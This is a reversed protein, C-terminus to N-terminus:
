DTPNAVFQFVLAGRPGNVLMDYLTDLMPARTGLDSRFYFARITDSSVNRVLTLSETLQRVRLAGDDVALSRSCVTFLDREASEFRQRARNVLALQGFSIAVGSSASSTSSNREAGMEATSAASSNPSSSTSSAPPSASPSRVNHGAAAGSARATGDSLLMAASNDQSTIQFLVMNRLAQFEESNVRLAAFRRLIDENVQVEHATSPDQDPGLTLAYADFAKRLVSYHDILQTESINLYFLERWSDRLLIQQDHMSWGICLQRVLQVIDFMVKALPENLDNVTRQEMAAQNPPSTPTPPQIPYAPQAIADAAATRNAIPRHLNNNVNLPNNNNNNHRHNNSSSNILNDINHPNHTRQNRHAEPPPPSARYAPIPPHSQLERQQHQQYQARLFHQHALHYAPLLAPNPLIQQLMLHHPNHALLHMPVVPRPPPGAVFPQLAHHHIEPVIPPPLMQLPARLPAPASIPPQMSLDLIDGPMRIHPPYPNSMSPHHQHQPYAHYQEHQQQHIQHPDDAVLRRPHSRMAREVERQHHEIYDQMHITHMNMNELGPSRQHMALSQRRLTSTRPGRENQVADRNMGADLCRKLRCARCHNRHTKDIPCDENVKCKYNRETRISRKFFGACGDCAYIGYHKGSSNDGCVRCPTDYLIRGLRSSFIYNTFGHSKRMIDVPNVRACFSCSQMSTAPFSTANAIVGFDLSCLDRARM